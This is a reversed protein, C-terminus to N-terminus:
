LLSFYFPDVVCVAIWYWGLARGARDVWTPSPYWWGGVRLALWTAAVAFGASHSVTVLESPAPMALRCVWWFQLPAPGRWRLMLVASEIVNRATFLIVVVGPVIGPRRWVRRGERSILTLALVTLSWWVFLPVTVLVWQRLGREPRLGTMMQAHEDYLDYVEKVSWLGYATVISMAVLQLWPFPRDDRTMAM